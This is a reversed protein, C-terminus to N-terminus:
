VAFMDREICEEQRLSNPYGICLRNTEKGPRLRNYNSDLSSGIHKSTFNISMKYNLDQSCGLGSGSWRGTAQCTRISSGVKYYGTNCHYTATQGFTTGGTHSVQGNAPNTVTGCNVATLLLFVDHAHIM